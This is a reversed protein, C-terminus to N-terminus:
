TVRMYSSKAINRTLFFINREKSDKSTLTHGRVGQKGTLCLFFDASPFPGIGGHHREGKTSARIGRPFTAM